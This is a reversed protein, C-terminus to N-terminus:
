PTGPRGGRAKLHRTADPHNWKMARDVPTWGKGDVPNIRARHDLLLDIIRLNGNQAAMHLPTLGSSTKAGVKAGREILFAAMEEEDHGVANHLLTARDWETRAILRPDRDLAARVMPINGETAAQVVETYDTIRGPRSRHFLDCSSFLGLAALAAFWRLANRNM